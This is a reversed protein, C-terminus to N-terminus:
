YQQHNNENLKKKQLVSDNKIQKNKIKWFAMM